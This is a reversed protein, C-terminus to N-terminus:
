VCRANTNVQRVNALTYIYILSVVQEQSDEILEYLVMGGSTTYCCCYSSTQQANVMTQPSSSDPPTPVRCLCTKEISLTLLNTGM